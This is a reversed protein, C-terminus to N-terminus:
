DNSFTELLMSAEAQDVNGYSYLFADFMARHLDSGEYYNVGDKIDDLCERIIASKGINFLEDFVIDNSNGDPNNTDVLAKGYMMCSLYVYDSIGVTSVHVMGHDNVIDLEIYDDATLKNIEAFTDCALFIEDKTIPYRQLLENINRRIIVDAVIDRILVGNREFALLNNPGRSEIM